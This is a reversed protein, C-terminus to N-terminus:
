AARRRVPPGARSSSVSRGPARVHPRRTSWIVCAQTSPAIHQSITSPARRAPPQTSPSLHQPILAPTSLASSRCCSPPLHHEHRVSCLPGWAGGRQVCGEARVLSQTKPPVFSTLSLQSMSGLDADRMTASHLRTKFILFGGTRASRTPRRGNRLDPTRRSASFSRSPRM